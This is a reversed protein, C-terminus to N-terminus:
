DIATMSPTCPLEGVIREAVQDPTRSDRIHGVLLPVGGCEFALAGSGVRAAEGDGLPILPPRLQERVAGDHGIAVLTETEADTSWLDFYGTMEGDPAHTLTPHGIAIGDVSDLQALLQGAPADGLYSAVPSPDCPLGAAMDDALATIGELLAASRPDRQTLWSTTVELQLDGCTMTWGPNDGTRVAHGDGLPMVFGDLTRLPVDAHRRLFIRLPREPEAPHRVEVTTATTADPLPTPQTREVEYGATILSTEIEVVAIEFAISDSPDTTDTPPPGIQDLSTPDTDSAPSTHLPRHLSIVIERGDTHRLLGSVAHEADAPVTITNAIAPMERGDPLRLSEWGDEVLYARVGEADVFALLPAGDMPRTFETISVICSGTTRTTTVVGICAVVDPPEDFQLVVTTSTTTVNGARAVTPGPAEPVRVEATVASIDAPDAPLGGDLTLQLAEVDAPGNSATTGNTTVHLTGAPGTVTVTPQDSGDAPLIAVNHDIDVTLGDHTARDYGDPVVLAVQEDPASLTSAFPVIGCGARVGVGPIGEPTGRVLCWTGDRNAGRKLWWTPDGDRVRWAAVGGMEGEESLDRVAGLFEGAQLPTGTPDPANLPTPTSTPPAPTIVQVTPDPRALVVVSIVTILLLGLVTAGTVRTRQRQAAARALVDGPTFGAKPPEAQRLLESLDSM